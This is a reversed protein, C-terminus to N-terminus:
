LFRLLCVRFHECFREFGGEESNCESGYCSFLFLMPKRRRNLYCHYGPCEIILLEQFSGVIVPRKANSEKLFSPKANRGDGM